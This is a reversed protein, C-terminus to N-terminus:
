KVLSCSQLLLSYSINHLFVYTRNMFLCILDILHDLSPLPKKLIERLDPSFHEATINMGEQVWCKPKSTNDILGGGGGGGGGGVGGGLFFFITAGVGLVARWCFISFDRPECSLM